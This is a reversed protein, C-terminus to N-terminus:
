DGNLIKDCDNPAHNPGLLSEVNRCYRKADDGCYTSGFANKFCPHLNLGVHSLPEDLSGTFYLIGLTIAVAAAIKAGIHSGGGARAPAAVVPGPPPGPPPPPPPLAHAPKPRIETGWEYGTWWRQQHENNPDDYFGAPAQPTSGEVTSGQRRPWGLHGPADVGTGSEPSM